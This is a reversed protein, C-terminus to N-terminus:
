RTKLEAVLNPRQKLLETLGKMCQHKKKRVVADSKYGTKEAIEAMSYSLSWLGLVQKCKEGLESLVEQLKTKKEELILHEEPTDEEIMTQSHDDDSSFERSHKRLRGLWVYKCIAIIYTKLNSTLEFEEKRANILFSRIGEQFVDEADMRSAGKYILYQMCADRIGSEGYIKNMVQNLEPGGKRIQEIWQRHLQATKM